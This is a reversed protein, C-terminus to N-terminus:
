KAAIVNARLIIVDGQKYGNNMVKIIEGRKFSDNKEAIVVEHEKGNFIDHQNPCITKIGYDDLILSINKVLNDVYNVYQKIIDNQSDRLRSVSYNLIEEFTSIEFLIQERKFQLIKKYVIDAQRNKKRKIKENFYDAVYLEIESDNNLNNFFYDYINKLEEDGINITESKYNNLLTDFEKQIYDRNEKLSEIKIKISENIGLIIDNFEVNNFKDKNIDSYNVLDFFVDILKNTLKLVDEISDKINDIDQLRENVIYEVYNRIFNLSSNKFENNKNIYDTKKSCSIKKLDFSEVIYIEFDKFECIKANNKSNTSKFLQELENVNKNLYQYGERLNSLINQVIKKEEESQKEKELADIQIKIVSQLDTKEEKLLEYYFGAVERNEIDNIKIIFKNTYEIYIDYLEKATNLIISQYIENEFESNMDYNYNIVYNNRIKDVDNFLFKTNEEIIKRKEIYIPNQNKKNKIILKEADDFQSILSFIVDYLGNLIKIVKDSIFKSKNEDYIKMANKYYKILSKYYDYIKEDNEILKKDCVITAIIANLLSQKIVKTINFITRDIINKKYFNLKNYDSIIQLYQKEIETNVPLKLM